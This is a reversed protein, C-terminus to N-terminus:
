STTPRPAPPWMRMAPSDARHSPFCGAWIAPSCPLLWSTCVRPLAGQLVKMECLCDPLIPLVESRRSLNLLGETCAPKHLSVKQGPQQLQPPTKTFCFFTSTVQTVTESHKQIQIVNTLSAPSFWIREKHTM